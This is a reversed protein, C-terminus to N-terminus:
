CSRWSIVPKAARLGWMAIADPQGSALFSKIVPELRWSAGVLAGQADRTEALRSIVIAANLRTRVSGKAIPAAGSTMAISLQNAYEDMFFAGAVAGNVLKTEGVLTDRAGKQADTKVDDALLSFQQGIFAAIATKDAATLASSSKLTDPLLGARTLSPALFLTAALSIALVCHRCNM